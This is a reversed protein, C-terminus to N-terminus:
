ILTDIGDENGTYSAQGDITPGDRWFDPEAQAKSAEEQAKWMEFLMKAQQNAMLQANRLYMTQMSGQQKMLAADTKVQATIGKERERYTKEKERDILGLQHVFEAVGSLLIRKAILILVAGIILFLAGGVAILAYGAVDSSFRTEIWWVSVVLLIVLAWLGSGGIGTMTKKM